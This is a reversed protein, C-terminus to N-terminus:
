AAKAVLEEEEAFNRTVHARFWQHVNLTANHIEEDHTGCCVTCERTRNLIFKKFM